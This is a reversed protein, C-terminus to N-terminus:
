KHLSFRMRTILEANTAISAIEYSSHRVFCHTQTTAHCRLFQGIVLDSDHKDESCQLWLSHTPSLMVKCQCSAHREDDTREENRAQKM